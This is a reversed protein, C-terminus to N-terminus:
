RQNNIALFTKPEFGAANALNGGDNLSTPRRAQLSSTPLEVREPPELGRAMRYIAITAEGIFSAIGPYTSVRYGGRVGQIPYISLSLDDARNRLSLHTLRPRHLYVAGPENPVRPWADQYNVLSTIISNM